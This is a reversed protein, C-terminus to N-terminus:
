SVSGSGLAEAFRRLEEEPILSRAGVKVTRLDGAKIFSYVSTRGLDLREAARKISNFYRSDTDL